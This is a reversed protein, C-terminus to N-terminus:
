IFDICKSTIHITFDVKEFLGGCAGSPDSSKIFFNIVGGGSLPAARGGSPPREILRGNTHVKRVADSIEYNENRLFNLVLRDNFLGGGPTILRKRLDESGLPAQPPSKSFTFKGKLTKTFHGIYYCNM